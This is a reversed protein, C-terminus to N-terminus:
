NTDTDSGSDNIEEWVILNSIWNACENKGDYDTTSNNWDHLFANNNKHLTGWWTEWNFSKEFVNFIASFTIIKVHMIEM